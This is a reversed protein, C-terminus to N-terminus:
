DGGPEIVAPLGGGRSRDRVERGTGVPDDMQEADSVAAVRAAQANAAV